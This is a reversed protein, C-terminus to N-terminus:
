PSEDMLMFVRTECAQKETGMGLPLPRWGGSVSGHSSFSSFGHFGSKFGDGDGGAFLVLPDVFDTDTQLPYARHTALGPSFRMRDEGIITTASHDNMTPEIWATMDIFVVVEAIFGDVVSQIISQYNYDGHAFGGGLGRSQGAPAKGTPINL